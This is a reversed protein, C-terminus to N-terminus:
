TRTITFLGSANFNINIPGAIQSIVAGLEIYAIAEKNTASFNYLICQSADDFGSGNQTLSVNTDDDDVTTVAAAQNTELDVTVGGQTYGGVFEGVENADYDVGSGAGWRPTADTQAATVGNTIIALKFTDAEINHVGDALDLAFANFVMFDGRAM